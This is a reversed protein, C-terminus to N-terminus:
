QEESWQWITYGYESNEFVPMIDGQKFHRRSNSKAPTEWFGTQACPQGGEVRGPRTPTETDLSTYRDQERLTRAYDVLDKPYVLHNIQSDNLDLLYVVAAAEFAWYGYYGAYGEKNINLHEDYWRPHDKMASYWQELYRNLLDLTKQEDEEYFVQLLIDYPDGLVCSSLAIDDEIYGGILQEFLGDQGRHSRLIHIIRKIARLDRLLIAISLLQLTDEYDFLISFDPAAHYEYSGYEPFELAAEKLFPQHINNWEEFADVIGIIRPALESIPVGATYDLMWIWFSELYLFRHVISHDEATEATLKNELQGNILKVQNARTKEYLEEYLFQQRRREHFPTNNM